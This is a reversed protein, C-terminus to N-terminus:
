SVRPLSKSRAAVKLMVQCHLDDRELVRALDVAVQDAASAIAQLDAEAEITAGLRAVLQGRERLVRGTASRVGPTGALVEAAAQVVPTAAARLRGEAGSGTLSLDGVRNHPIHGALWRLGILVLALGVLGAVWPWWSQGTTDTVPSTDLSKPLWSFVHRWWLVAFVGATIAVVGVLFASVRDFAIVRRSM